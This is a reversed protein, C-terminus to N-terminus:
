SKLERIKRLQWNTVFNPTKGFVAVAHALAGIGWGLIPWQAWWPGGYLANITLLATNVLLYTTLHIYFGTITEVQQKAQILKAHDDM